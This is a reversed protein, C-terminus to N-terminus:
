PSFASTMTELLVVCATYNPTQFVLVEETNALSIIIHYHVRDKSKEVDTARQLM